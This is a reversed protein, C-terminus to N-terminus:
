KTKLYRVLHVIPNIPKRKTGTGGKETVEMDAFVERAMIADPIDCDFEVPKNTFLDDAIKKNMIASLEEPTRKKRGRLKRVLLIIPNLVGASEDSDIKDGVFMKMLGIIIVAVFVIPFAINIAGLTGENNVSSIVTQLIIIILIGIVATVIGSTLKNQKM